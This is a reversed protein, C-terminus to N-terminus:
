RGALLKGADLWRLLDDTARTCTVLRIGSPRAPASERCPTSFFRLARNARVLGSSCLDSSRLLPINTTAEKRQFAHTPVMSGLRVSAM